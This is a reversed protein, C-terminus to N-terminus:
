SKFIVIKGEHSLQALADEMVVLILVNVLGSKALQVATRTCRGNCCPNLCKKIIALTRIECTRTCRGNCCPNLGDIRHWIGTLPTTRTCRGNCCPNLSKNITKMDKITTQALADEM